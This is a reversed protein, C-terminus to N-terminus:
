AGQAAGEERPRTFIMRGASTQLVSTVTVEIGQGLYKRGHDVVVMTGDQLYAVGQGAEKGERLVTVRMVEGPLVVPKIASAVDNINLVQVGSLEAMKNLNYDNTVVRAGLTKGLEILKRDVEPVHPFDVDIIEVKVKASRQLRQLVDFGRKGRNRKLGDSSDAIQQLERLVFQPVVLTGDIFGTECVDAIRGDIIASTDLVKAHDARRAGPFLVASVPELDARRRLATAAGVYAGLLAPLGFGVMGTNPILSAIAAGVAIGAILGFFGGLAGWFLREVPVGAMHSELLVAGTGFAAGVLAGVWWPVSLAPALSGSAAASLLVVILRIIVVTM